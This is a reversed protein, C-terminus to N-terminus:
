LNKDILECWIHIILIHCEQIRCTRNGPIIIEIDALGRMKGGDKGSLLITKLGKKRAQLIGLRVNPSNGSTTIGVAADGKDGMAEIQRSFVQSFDYDNGIATLSSVNAPLAIAKLPGREKEFRCVLEGVFHLSDAASGGNGFVLIKKGNKLASIMVCASEEIERSSRCLKEGYLRAEALSDLIKNESAAKRSTKM